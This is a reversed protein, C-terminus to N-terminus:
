CFGHCLILSIEASSVPTLAPKSFRSDPSIINIHTSGLNPGGASKSKIASEQATGSGTALPGEGGNGHSGEMAGGGSGTSSDADVAAATGVGEGEAVGVTSGSLEALPVSSFAPPAERSQVASDAGLLVKAASVQM